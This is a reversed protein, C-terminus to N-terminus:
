GPTLVLTQAYSTSGRNGQTRVTILLYIQTAQGIDLADASQSTGAGSESPLYTACRNDVGGLKENYAVGPFTCLRHIVYSIRLDPYLTNAAVTVSTVNAWGTVPTWTSGGPPESSYYATTLDDINLAGGGAALKTQITRMAAQIGVDTAQATIAKHALNGAVLTSTDISRMLTIGAVMLAVLVILSIILSVGKQTKPHIAFLQASM